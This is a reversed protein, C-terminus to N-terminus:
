GSGEAKSQLAAEIEAAIETLRHAGPLRRAAEASSVRPDDALDPAIGAILAGAESSLRSIHRNWEGEVPVSRPLPVLVFGQRRALYRTMVPHGPKGHTVSELQEIVRAPMSDRETKSCYRQLHSTSLGTEEASAELGGAAEILERAREAQRQEAVPLNM